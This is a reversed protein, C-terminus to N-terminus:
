MAIESIVHRISQMDQMTCELSVAHLPYKGWYALCMASPQQVLAGCESLQRCHSSLLANGIAIELKGMAHM